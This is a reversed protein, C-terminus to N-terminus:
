ESLPSSFRLRFGIYDGPLLESILQARGILVHFFHKLNTDFLMLENGVRAWKGESLLFGKYILQYLRDPQVEIKFGEDSGYVGFKLDFLEQNRTKYDLRRQKLNKLRPDDKFHCEQGIGSQFIFRRNTLFSFSKVFELEKGRLTAEMGFGLIADSFLITDNNMVFDGGSLVNVIQIDPTAHEIFYIQYKDDIYFDIYFDTSNDSTKYIFTGSFQANAISVNVILTLAM